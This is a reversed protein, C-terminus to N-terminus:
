LYDFIDFYTVHNKVNKFSRQFVSIDYTKHLKIYFKAFWYKFSQKYIHKHIMPLIVNNRTYKTSNTISYIFFNPCSKNHLSHYLKLLKNFIRHRISFNPDLSTFNQLRNCLNIFKERKMKSAFLFCLISYEVKPLIFSMFIKGLTNKDLYFQLSNFLKIYASLLSILYNYQKDFKFNEDYFVGLYKYNTVYEFIFSSINVPPYIIRQKRNYFVMIKSKTKNISLSNNLFWSMILMSIGLFDVIENNM